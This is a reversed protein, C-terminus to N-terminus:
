LRYDGGSWPVLSTFTWRAIYVRQTALMFNCVCTFNNKKPPSLFKLACTIPYSSLLHFFIGRTLDIGLGYLRNYFFFTPINTQSFLDQSQTSWTLPPHHRAHSTTTERAMRLNVARSVLSTTRDLACRAASLAYLVYM